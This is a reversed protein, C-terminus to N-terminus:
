MTEGVEWYGNQKGKAREEISACNDYNRASTSLYTGSMQGRIECVTIELM